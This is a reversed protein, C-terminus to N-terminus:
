PTVATEEEIVVDGSHLIRLKTAPVYDCHNSDFVVVTRDGHESGLEMLKVVWENVTM